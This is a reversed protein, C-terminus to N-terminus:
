IRRNETESFFLSFQKLIQKNIHQCHKGCIDCFSLWCLLEVTSQVFSLQIHCKYKFCLFCCPLFWKVFKTSTFKKKGENIKLCNSFLKVYWIVDTTRDFYAQEAIHVVRVSIYLTQDIASIFIYVYRVNLCDRM